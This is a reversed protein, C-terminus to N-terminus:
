KGEWQVAIPGTEVSGDKVPDGREHTPKITVSTVGRHKGTHGAERQCRIDFKLFPSGYMNCFGLDAKRGCYKM